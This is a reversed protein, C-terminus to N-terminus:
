FCFPEASLKKLQAKKISQFFVTEELTEREGSVTETECVVGTRHMYLPYLIQSKTIQRNGQERKLM